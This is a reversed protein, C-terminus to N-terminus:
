FTYRLIPRTEARREIEQFGLHLFTSFLGTYAFVDPYTKGRTDVPYAELISAGRAKAYEIAGLILSKM